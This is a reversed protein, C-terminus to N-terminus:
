PRLLPDCTQLQLLCRRGNPSDTLERATSPPRSRHPRALGSRPRPRNAPGLQHPIHQLRAARIDALRSLDCPVAEVTAGAARATETIDNLRDGPRGVLLVDPRDLAARRALESTLDRGLGSTPGTILVTGTESDIRTM